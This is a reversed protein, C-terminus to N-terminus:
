KTVAASGKDTVLWRDTRADLGVLGAEKATNRLAYVRSRNKKTDKGYLREALWGNPPDPRELMAAVLQERKGLGQAAVVVAGANAAGNAQGTTAPILGGLSRIRRHVEAEQADLQERRTKIEQLAKALSLLENQLDSSGTGM